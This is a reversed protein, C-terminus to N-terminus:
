HVSSSVPSLSTVGERNVSHAQLALCTTLVKLLQEEVRRLSIFTVLLKALLLPAGCRGHRYLKMM